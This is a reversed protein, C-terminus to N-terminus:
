ACTCNPCKEHCEGKRPFLEDESKGLIQSLRIMEIERPKILGRSIKSLRVESIGIQIAVQYAPKPHDLLAHRLPSSM